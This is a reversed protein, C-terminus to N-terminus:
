VNRRQMPRTACVKGPACGRRYDRYATVVGFVFLGATVALLYPRLHEFVAAAALAAIGTVAAVIPLICCLSAAVAAIAAGGFILSRRM